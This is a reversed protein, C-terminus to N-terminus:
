VLFDQDLQDLLASLAAGAAEIEEPEQRDLAAELRGLARGIVARTDGLREEFLRAARAVLARTKMDDRPHIKLKAMAALRKAIEAPQMVGPNGEIV